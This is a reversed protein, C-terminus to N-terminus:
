APQGSAEGVTCGAIRWSGDRQRELTFLVRWAQGDADVLRLMQTATRGKLDADLFGISAPRYLMPFRGRVLALFHGPHGAQKRVAPTATQFAAEADDDAFAQFHAVIVKRMAEADGASPGAQAPGWSLAVLGLILVFRCAFRVM